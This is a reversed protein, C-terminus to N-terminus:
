KALLPQSGAGEDPECFRQHTAPTKQSPIPHHTAVRATGLAASVRLARGRVLDTLALTKRSGARPGTRQLM